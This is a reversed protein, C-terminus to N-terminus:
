SNVSCADTRSPPTIEFAYSEAMGGIASFTVVVQAVPLGTLTEQARAAERIATELELPDPDSWARVAGRIVPRIQELTLGAAQLNRVREIVALAVAPYVAFTRTGERRRAPLPLLRDRQWARVTTTSVPEIGLDRTRAVLDEITLTPTANPFWDIWRERGLSATASGGGKGGSVGAVIHEQPERPKPKAPTTETTSM